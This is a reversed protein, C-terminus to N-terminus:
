HTEATLATSTDTNTQKRLSQQRTVTTLTSRLTQSVPASSQQWAFHRPSQPHLRAIFM